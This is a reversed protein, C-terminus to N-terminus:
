PYRSTPSDLGAGPRLAAPGTDRGRAPATWSSNRAEIHRFIMSLFDCISRRFWEKQKALQQSLRASVSDYRDACLVWQHANKEKAAAGGNGGGGAAQQLVQALAQRRQAM